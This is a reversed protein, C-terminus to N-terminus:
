LGDVAAENTPPCVKFPLSTQFVLFLLDGCSIFSIKNFFEIEIGINLSSILSSSFSFQIKLNTPILVIFAFALHFLLSNITRFPLSILLSKVGDPSFSM